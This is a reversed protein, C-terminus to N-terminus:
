KEGPGAQLPRRGRILLTPNRSLDDGFQSFTAVMEILQQLLQQATPLLQNNVNQIAASSSALTENASDSTKDMKNATNEFARLTKQTQEVMNPFQNSVNATNKLIVQMSALSEDIAKSKKAIVDTIKEINQLSAGIAQQNTTDLLRNLKVMVAKTEETISRVSTALDGLLSPQSPIIIYEQHPQRKLPPAHTTLAKLAIYKGATFGESEIIAVTSTTIPADDQIKMFVKVDQLNNKDMKIKSVYGVKIGNYRVLSEKHLGTVSQHFYSLYVHFNMVKKMTSMWFIIIILASILIVGIIGVITYNVKTDM